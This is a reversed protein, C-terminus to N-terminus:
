PSNENVKYVVENIAAKISKRVAKQFEESENSNVMVMGFYYDRSASSKVIVGDVTIEINVVVIDSTGEPELISPLIPSVAGAAAARSAQMSRIPYERVSFGKLIVNKGDLSKSAKTALAHRLVTVRDPVFSEDGHNIYQVQSFPNSPNNAIPKWSREIEPRQDLFTFTEVPNSKLEELKVHGLGGCASLLIVSTIVLLVSAARM